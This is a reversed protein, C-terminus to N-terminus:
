GVEEYTRPRLQVSHHNDGVKKSYFDGDVNSDTLEYGKKTLSSHLSKRVKNVSSKSAASYEQVTRTETQGYLTNTSTKSKGLPKAGASKAVTDVQGFGSSKKAAGGGKSSKSSKTGSSGRSKGGGGGGAACKNGPQFGGSGIGCNNRIIELALETNTPSPGLHMPDTGKGNASLSHAFKLAKYAGKVPLASLKIVKGVPSETIADFLNNGKGRSQAKVGRDYSKKAKVILDDSRLKGTLRDKFYKVMDKLDQKQSAKFGKKSAKSSKRSRRSGGGGGKACTNGPLFGGGGPRNAGCNNLTLNTM